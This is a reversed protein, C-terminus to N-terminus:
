SKTMKISQITRWLFIRKSIHDFISDTTVGILGITFIFVLMNSTQLFRNAQMIKFGIGNQAAVIEAVLLYSWAWGLGVKLIDFIYPLRAPIIIRKIIQFNNRVGLYRAAEIYGKDFNNVDDRILLTIQFFSGIFIVFFKEFDGTGFLLMLLPVM